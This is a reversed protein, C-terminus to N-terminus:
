PPFARKAVLALAVWTARVSGAHFRPVAKAVFAPTTKEAVLVEVEAGIVFRAAVATSAEVGTM